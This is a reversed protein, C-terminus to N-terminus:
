GSRAGAPRGRHRDLLRQDRREDLEQLRRERGLGLSNQGTTLVPRVCRWSAVGIRSPWSNAAVGPLDLLRDPPSPGGPVLQQGHREAPGRDPGPDVGMGLERGPGARAQGLEQGAQGHALRRVVEVGLRREVDRDGGM